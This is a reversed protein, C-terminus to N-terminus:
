LRPGFVKTKGYKKTTGFPKLVITFSYGYSEEVDRDKTLDRYYNLDVGLCDNEYLLGYQYGINKNIDLNKHGTLNFEFDNSFKFKSGVRIQESPTFYKGSNYDYDVGLSFNDLALLLNSNNTKIDRNDKDIILSNNFYKNDDLIISSSVYYDSLEEATDNRNKNFKLSQGGVIKIDFDNKHELFWEVGFNIRPGSESEFISSSRNRSFLNSNTVSQHDTYNNYPAIIPMLIPTLTQNSSNLSKFLPYTIKSSIQPFFRINETDGESKNDNSISVIRLTAANDFLIGSSRNIMDYDWNAESSFLSIYSEDLNKQYSLDNKLSLRGSLGAFNINNINYQIRPYVYEWQNTNQITLHKYSSAYANFYTNNTENEFKIGSEHVTLQNIKNKRLYTDNNSTKLSANLSGYKNFIDADLFIHNRTGENNSNDDISGDINFLGYNNLNRYNIEYFDNAKSQINPTITVDRNGAFNIFYPISIQDGLNKDTQITPMLFGTRKKVSPDPHSFYPLYILPLNFLYLRAHDYYVTKKNEDQYIKKSRLKWGPCNKILYRDESCPTYEADNLVTINEKKSINAAVIRSGDSMRSKVNDGVLNNLSKDTIVRSMFYYNGEADLVVVDENATVRNNKNDYLVNEANIKTGDENIILVDGSAEIFDKQKDTIMKDALIKVNQQASLDNNIFLVFALIFLSLLLIIKKFTRDM